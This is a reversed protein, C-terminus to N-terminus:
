HLYVIVIFLLLISDFSFIFQLTLIIIQMVTVSDLSCFSPFSFFIPVLGYRVVIYAGSLFFLRWSLEFSTTADCNGDNYDVM